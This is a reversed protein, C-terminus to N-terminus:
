LDNSKSDLDQTQLETVVTGAQLDLDITTTCAPNLSLLSITQSCLRFYERLGENRRQPNEQFPSVFMKGQLFSHLFHVTCCQECLTLTQLSELAKFLLWKEKISLQTKPKEPNKIESTLRCAAKM